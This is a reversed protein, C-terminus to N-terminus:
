GCGLAGVVRAGGPARGPVVRFRTRAAALRKAAGDGAGLSGRMFFIPTTWV